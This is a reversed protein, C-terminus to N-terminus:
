QDNDDMKKKVFKLITGAFTLAEDAQEPTFFQFPSGTPFADPYRASVYYLDLRKASTEVDGGIGLSQCIEFVSHGRVSEFGSFLALAKMAKEAVQQCVFCCQAYRNHTRTDEAWAYDDEAQVLWDHARSEM